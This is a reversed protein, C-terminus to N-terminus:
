DYCFYLTNNSPTLAAYESSTCIVFQSDNNFSLALENAIEKLSEIKSNSESVVTTVSKLSAAAATASTEANNAYIKIDAASIAKDLLTDLSSQMTSLKDGVTVTTTTEGTTTQSYIIDSVKLTNVKSQLETIAKQISTLDAGEQINSSLEDIIDKISKDIVETSSGDEADTVTKTSYVIASADAIGEQSSPILKNPYYIAM